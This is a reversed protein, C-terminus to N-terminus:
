TLLTFGKEQGIGKATNTPCIVTIVYMNTGLYLRITLRLFCYKKCDLTNLIKQM